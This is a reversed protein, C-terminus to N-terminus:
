FIVIWNYAKGRVGFGDLKDLIIQRNVYDFAKTMDLCIATIPIKDNLSYNIIKGLKM